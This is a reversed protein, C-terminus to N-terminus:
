KFIYKTLEYQLKAINDKLRKIEECANDNCSKLEGNEHKLSAVEEFYNNCRITMEKFSEIHNKAAYENLLNSLGGKVWVDGGVSGYLTDKIGKGKLFDKALIEQKSNSLYCDIMICVYECPKNTTKCIKVEPNNCESRM